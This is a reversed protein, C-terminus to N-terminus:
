NAIKVHSNSPLFAAARPTKREAPDCHKRPSSPAIRGTSHFNRRSRREETRTFLLFMHRPVFSLLEAFPRRAIWANHGHRRDKESDSNQAELTFPKVLGHKKRKTEFNDIAKVTLCCNPRGDGRVTIRSGRPPTSRVFGSNSKNTAPIFPAYPGSRARSSAFCNRAM